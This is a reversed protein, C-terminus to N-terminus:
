RTFYIRNRLKMEKIILIQWTTLCPWMVVWLELLSCQSPTCKTFAWEYNIICLLNHLIWWLHNSVMVVITSTRENTYKNTKQSVLLIKVCCMYMHSKGGFMIHADYQTYFLLLLCLTFSIGMYLASDIYDSVLILSVATVDNSLPTM